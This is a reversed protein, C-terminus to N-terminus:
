AKLQSVSEMWHAPKNCVPAEAPLNNKAQQVKSNHISIKRKINPMCHYSLKVTNRNIIKRLPHNHPFCKDLAKFFIEGVNTKVNLSFPPNFYTIKRKRSQRRLHQNTPNFMLEFDYGSRRLAEQYPPIAARFVDENASITNLRKNVSQPINKIIGPPHNSLKHVYVPKDNPKMFPKFLETELDLNIDLFNVNKVNAEVTINLGNDSFVKCLKKKMLETQRPNLSCLCLGDDRYLGVQIGLKSLESLLYLRVIECIEAGDWSGMTVDFQDNGKKNWPKEDNFLISNRCQFIINKDQASIKVFKSAYNLSKTLLIKRISPYFEKIDFQIFSAREKGQLNVFWNIVSESNKWHNLKTKNRVTEVINSLIRKSVKGLESKSPNILSCKANNPFSEKHDKVTIYSQRKGM